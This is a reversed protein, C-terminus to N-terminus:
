KDELIREFIEKTKESKYILGHVNSFIMLAFPMKTRKSINKVVQNGIIEIVAQFKGVGKLIDIMEDTAVANKVKQITEYDCDAKESASGFAEGRGDGYKSHTNFVNLYLKIMKGIHGVLLFSEAGKEQLINMTEGIFNSCKVSIDRELQFEGKLFTQGYNGPTILINKKEMAIKQSIEVAITDVIAKDSMPHVIGSTGLVSIGGVIGLRPNFTQKALEVGAPISIEVDIGFDCNHSQLIKECASKIMKRPVSNIAHNGVPQDLGPKTVTGIGLGGFINVELPQLNENKCVKAFVKAGHTVDPDDGADKIVYCRNGCDIKEFGHLEINLIEGCPTEVAFCSVDVGLLALLAGASAATASSGTTYGSKLPTNNKNEQQNM